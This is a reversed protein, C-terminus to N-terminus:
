SQELHVEHFGLAALLQEREPLSNTKLVKRLGRESLVARENIPKLLVAQVKDPLKLLNMIQTVRARSWGYMRGIEAKSSVEGSDLLSKFEHALLLHNSHGEGRKEQRKLGKCSLKKSSTNVV